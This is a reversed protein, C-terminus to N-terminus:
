VLTFANGDPDQFRGDTFVVGRNEYIAIAQALPIKTRLEIDGARLRQTGIRVALLFGEGADIVSEGAREEVLKMGLTEIYFRIASAVDAVHVVVTGGCIM